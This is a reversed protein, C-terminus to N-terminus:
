LIAREQEPSILQAGFTVDTEITAKMAEAQTKLSALSMQPLRNMSKDVM